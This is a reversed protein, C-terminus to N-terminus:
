NVNLDSALKSLGGVKIKELDRILYKMDYYSPFYANLLKYFGADDNPLPGYNLLKVLYAFDFGGHFCVWTIDENM